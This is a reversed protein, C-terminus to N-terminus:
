QLHRDTIWFPDLSREPEQNCLGALLDAFLLDLGM